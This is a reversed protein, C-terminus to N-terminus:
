LKKSSYQRNNFPNLFQDFFNFPNSKSCIIYLKTNVIGAGQGPILFTQTLEIKNFKSNLIFGIFRKGLVPASILAIKLILTLVIKSM